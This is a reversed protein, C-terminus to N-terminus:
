VVTVKCVDRGGSPTTVTVYAVGKGAAYLNGLVTNAPSPTLVSPPDVSWHVTRDAAAPDTHVLLQINEYQAVTVERQAFAVWVPDPDPRSATVRVSDVYLRMQPPLQAPDVPTGDRLQRQVALNLHLFLANDGDAFPMFGGPATFDAVPAEWYCSGDLFFRLQQGTWELEYLHWASLDVEEVARHPALHEGAPGYAHVTTEFGAEPPYAEMLDIEGGAPWVEQPYQSTFRGAQLWIAPWGGYGGEVRARVSLRTGPGFEFKGATHISGSTVAQGQRRATIVLCGGEVAVAEPTYAQLDNERQVGQEYSWKGLDLTDGSFDEWFLVVGGEPAAPEGAAQQFAAPAQSAAQQSAAPAQSAAPPQGPRCGLLAAAALAMALARFSGKRTM